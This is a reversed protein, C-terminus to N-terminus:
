AGGLEAGLIEELEALAELDKPRGAARKTVRGARRLEEAWEQLAQHRLFREEVSLRLNERLLTRDINCKYADVVPNVYPAPPADHTRDAATEDTM